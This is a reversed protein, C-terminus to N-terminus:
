CPLAQKQQLCRSGSPVAVWGPLRSARPGWRTSTILVRVLGEQLQSLLLRPSCRLGRPLSPGFIGPVWIPGARSPLWKEHARKLLAAPNRQKWQSKWQLAATLLEPLRRQTGLREEKCAITLLCAAARELLPVACAPAAARPPLVNGGVNLGKNTGGDSPDGNRWPSSPTGSYM